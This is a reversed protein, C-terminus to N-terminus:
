RFYKQTIPMRRDRGFAKPTIRVGPPSQRRKYEALDVLRIIRHVIKKDFGEAVIENQGMDKEIYLKLIPDLIDYDPLSDSDKQDPRLEASPPKTIISKPIVTKDERRNYWRALKFVLTKYVDKIVAFGGATDGYLTSYGVSTESKNGTTLVLWGFKNSLAMLINGRIRAQLNEETIDSKLGKFQDALMEHYRGFTEDIAITTLEVDLNHALKTADKTSQDSTYQSPMFVLHLHESGVCDHAIVATLASDIGGSLGIVVDTFGNKRIYDSTGRVLARYIEEEMKFPPEIRMSELKRKTGSKYDTLDIAKIPQYFVEHRLFFHDNGLFSLFADPM